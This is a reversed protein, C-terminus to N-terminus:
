GKVGSVVIGQIFWRQAAFFLIVCPLMAVCAGAMMLAYNAQHEGAFNMIGLSLPFKEQSTLYILPGFFDNWHTLFSFLGVMILAPKALPLVITLFIRVHSAGDIKAADELENPITLFFQRLLFTSFPGAFFAPVLLPLYTDLWDLYSFMIYSPIITTWGPIMMTALMTVFMANRGRFRLRAFAYAAISSGLLNGFVGIVTLVVTNWLYQAFPAEVFLLLYNQPALPDPLWRIPFELTQAPTKLSTTIMWALPILFSIAGLILMLYSLASQPTLLTRRSSNV